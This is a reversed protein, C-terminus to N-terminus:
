VDGLYNQKKIENPEIFRYYLGSPAQKFGEELRQSAKPREKDRIIEIVQTDKQMTLLFYGASLATVIVLGAALVKEFSRDVPSNRRREQPQPVYPPISQRRPRQVPEQPTYEPLPTQMQPQQFVMDPSQEPTDSNQRAFLEILFYDFRNDSTTAKQVLGEYESTVKSLDLPGVLQPNKKYFFSMGKPSMRWQQFSRSLEKERNDRYNNENLLNDVVQNLTYNDNEYVRAFELFEVDPNTSNLSVLRTVLPENM